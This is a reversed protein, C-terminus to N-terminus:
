FKLKFCRLNLDYIFNILGFLCKIKYFNEEKDKQSSFINIGLFKHYTQNKKKIKEFLKM